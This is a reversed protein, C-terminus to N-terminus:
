SEACGVDGGRMRFTRVTELDVVSDAVVSYNADQFVTGTVCNEETCVHM